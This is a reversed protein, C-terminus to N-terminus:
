PNPVQPTIISFAREGPRVMSYHERAVREIEAPSQLRRQEVALAQNAQQLSHLQARAHALEHEQDWLSRTPYAFFFVAIVAVVAVAAVRLRFTWATM